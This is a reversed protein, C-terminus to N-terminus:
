GRKQRAVRVLEYREDCMEAAQPSHSVLIVCKGQATLERFIHMIENQTEGDLNGMMDNMMSSRDYAISATVTLGELTTKKASEAAQRISLGLCASTAIVLAIIGILVNRGKSRGICRLANKLIYMSNKGKKAFTREM